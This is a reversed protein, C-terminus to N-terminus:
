DARRAIAWAEEFDDYAKRSEFILDGWHDSTFWPAKWETYSGGVRGRLELSINYLRLKVAFPPPLQAPSQSGCDPCNSLLHSSLAAALKNLIGLVKESYTVHTDHFQGETVKIAAAVYNLKWDDLNPGLKGWSVGGKPGGVPSTNPREGEKYKKYRRIAYNGPLWVGNHSGNINYGIMKTIKCTRGEEAGAGPKIAKVDKRERHALKGSGSPGLYDYLDSKGLSANGPILHHAAVTVPFVREEVEVEGESRPVVLKVGGRETDKPKSEFKFKDPAYPGGVTGDAGLGGSSLNQGLLGGDNQQEPGAGDTDDNAIGEDAEGTPGDSSEKFPCNKSIDSAFAVDITELLEM